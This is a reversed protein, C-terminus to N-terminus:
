AEAPADPWDEYRFPDPTEFDFAYLSKDIDVTRNERIAQAGSLAAVAAMLGVMQNAKPTGKTKVDNVFSEFQLTDVSKDNRPTIKERETQAQNSMERSKGSTVDNAVSAASRHGGTDWPGAADPEPLFYASLETVRFAGRDGEILECAGLMANQCTSSYAVRVTYPQNIKGINQYISRADVTGFAPNSPLIEYEYVLM